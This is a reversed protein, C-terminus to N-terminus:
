AEGEGQAEGTTLPELERRIEALKTKPDVKQSPPALTSLGAFLYYLAGLYGVVALVNLVSGTILGLTLWLLAKFLNRTARFLLLIVFAGRTASDTAALVHYRLGEEILYRRRRKVSSSAEKQKAWATVRQGVILLLAFLASGLAGQVIVPFDAIAAVLRDM